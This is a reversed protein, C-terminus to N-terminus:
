TLQILLDYRYRPLTARAIVVFYCVLLTKLGMVLSSGGGLFVAATLMAMFLINAYEAMFLLSFGIAGYEVNFGSM